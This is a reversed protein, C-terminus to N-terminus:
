GENPLKLWMVEYPELEISFRQKSGWDPYFTDGSVLERFSSKSPVGWAYADFDNEVLDATINHVCLVRSAEEEGVAEPAELERLLAFVGTETPVVRQSATPHFAPDLSRATLLSKYGEFVAHRLTDSSNLEHVVQAYDLEERNIARLDGTERVGRDWNESGILSHAYLAPVGAFALMVAQTALFKRARQDEPLAAETIASLYNIHVAGPLDDDEYAVYGGRDRARDVMWEIEERALFTRAPELAIAEHSAPANLYSASAGTDPLTAAWHQLRTSDESLFTFLLMAPLVVNYVMHAGDWADGFFSLVEEQTGDAESVLLAWPAVRELVRRFIRVVTREQAYGAGDMRNLRILVAGQELYDLMLDLTELLLEPTFNEEASGTIQTAKPIVDVMLTFGSAIRRIDEWSGLRAEVSRPDRVSFADHGSREFFPLIHVASSIGEFEDSLFDYLYSLPPRDSGTFQGPYSVVISDAQDLSFGPRGSAPVHSPPSIRQAHSRILQEVRDSADSDPGYLERCLTDIDTAM